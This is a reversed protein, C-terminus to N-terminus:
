PESTTEILTKCCMREDLLGEVRARDRVAGVATFADSALEADACGAAQEDCAFRLIARHYLVRGAELRSGIRRFEALATDFFRLADDPQGRALFVQGQVRSALAHYHPASGFEAFTAAQEALRAAENVRDARLYTEAARAIILNRALANETHRVLAVYQEYWELAAAVDDRMMAARGLGHLAWASLVLQNLARARVWGREAHDLAAVDEGLDAAIQATLPELWTALRGEGIQECLALAERAASYANALEGMGHLAQVRCFESWGVRALSGIKRGEQADLAAFALAEGWLGRFAANEALFENGLAIASPFQKREGIAINTRAWRDSKEYQMLHQHAGAQFACIDSLIAPDDLPEALQWARDLFEVARTHETRYHYYRGVLATALALTNTQTGPDLEALSEELRALGRPDGIPAYAKGLKVKLAARAEGTTAAALAREYSEVAAHIVGRMEHIDGIQEEVAALDDARKLAEASEHARELFKLAEDHAFVRQATAAARRSYALSRELDGAQTFHHALEQTHDDPRSTTAEHFTSADYLRELAEGIRQHLRRQRIPNLEEYLVERIKDHTFAFKDSGGSSATAKDSNSRVLQAASAEDLADLLADVNGPTVAALEDFSFIKGLAAATRLTDVAADTLRTLRQGIAEKVSQPIALEHMEKRGWGSDQRYIQGQEILSKLVEEIFFPNGETERYLADVFEDSVSEQGLLMAILVGTGAQSLRELAIRTALRERNWDVLVAALPHARDLEVTRYTAVALVRDNRLHRLLYHLLSLTGRDAWHLDDVFLLLGCDAALSQLLRGFNDFLRLREEGPSLPTNPAITGLRSEIEPALKAMEAATTGLKARLQEIGQGHVWERLAEVLPLYPTIREYEYCGGRLLTAGSQRVNAILEQALRTKGVGPEGSLLVLHGRAQQAQDWHEKLQTLEVTRGVLKGRVLEHLVAGPMSGANEVRLPAFESPLDAAVFQFLTEPEALGRLKHSGLLRLTTGPAMTPRVREATAASLVIQGGHGASMVRQARALTLSSAYEGDQPEAAGTHLGMRVRLADIGSWSERHLARQARLAAAVANDAREFVSCFADGVIKFVCGHYFGIADHLLAHHRALAGPMAGPHQQLLRMSGEIDTFLFTVIGSPLTDM